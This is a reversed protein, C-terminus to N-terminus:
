NIIKAIIFNVKLDAHFAVQLKTSITFCELCHHPFEKNEDLSKLFAKSHTENFPLEIHLIITTKESPTEKIMAKSWVDYM